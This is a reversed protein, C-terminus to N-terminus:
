DLLKFFKYDLTSDSESVYEDNILGHRQTSDTHITTEPNTFYRILAIGLM